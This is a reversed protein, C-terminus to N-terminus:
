SSTMVIAMVPRKNPIWQDSSSEGLSPRYHPAHVNEKNLFQQVYLLTIYFAMVCQFGYVLGNLLPGKIQREILLLCINWVIITIICTYIVTLWHSFLQPFLQMCM